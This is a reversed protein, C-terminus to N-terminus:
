LTTLSSLKSDKDCQIILLQDTFQPPPTTTLPSAMSHVWMKTPPLLSTAMQAGTLDPGALRMEVVPCDGCDGCDGCDPCLVYSELSQVCSIPCKFCSIVCSTPCLVCSILCLSVYYLVYSMPCLVCYLYDPITEKIDM